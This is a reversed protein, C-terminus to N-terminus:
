KAAPVDGHIVLQPYPIEIHADDLAQKTLSTMAFFVDWYKETKCWGRVTLNVASDGLSLVEVQPAPDRLVDPLAKLADMLVKRAKAIDEGYAIGATVDVRRTKLATVNTIAAGWMVKNPVIVRKNDVTALTTEMMNLEVVSGEVAGAVIYDGVRFPQNIAIMLGSALNGLTEQFAFGVIFGTVGLGAVLPTINIGLRQLIMMVLLIWCVKQVVNCIFTELLENIRKSKQIAKRVSYVILRIVWAGVLLLLLSVVVNVLFTAGHSVLWQQATDLWAQGQSVHAMVAQHLQQAGAAASKAFPAANTATQALFSFM